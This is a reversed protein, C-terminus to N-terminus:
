GDDPHYVGTKPDKKLTVTREAEQRQDNGVAKDKAAPKGARERLRAERERLFKFTVFVLAMVLLLVLIKSGSFM